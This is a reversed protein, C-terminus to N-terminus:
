SAPLGLSQGFAQLLRAAQQVAQQYQLIQTVRPDLPVGAITATATPVAHDTARQRQPGTDLAFGSWAIDPTSMVWDLGQYAPPTCTGGSVAGGMPAIMGAKPALRCFFSARENMDGFLLVPVEPYKARMQRVLAAETETTANRLAHGMGGRDYAAPHHTDLVWVRRGTQLSELMVAPKEVTDNPHALDQGVARYTFATGPVLAWRSRNWAIGTGDFDSTDAHGPWLDYGPALARFANVQARTQFEQFGVIDLDLRQVEAAEVAMRTCYDPFSSSDHGGYGTSNTHLGGLLNFSAVRFVTPALPDPAVFGSPLEAATPYPTALDPPCSCVSATSTALVCPRAGPDPDGAIAAGSTLHLLTVVVALCAFRAIRRILM